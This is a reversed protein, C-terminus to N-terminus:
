TGFMGCETIENKWTVLGSSILSLLEGETPNCALLPRSVTLLNCILEAVALTFLPRPSTNTALAMLVEVLRTALSRCQDDGNVDALPDDSPVTLRVGTEGLESREKDKREDVEDERM